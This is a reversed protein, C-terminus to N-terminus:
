AETKKKKSYLLWGVLAAILIILAIVGYTSFEPISKLCKSGCGVTGCETCEILKPTHSPCDGTPKDITDGTNPDCCCQEAIVIKISALLLLTIIGLLLLKKRM